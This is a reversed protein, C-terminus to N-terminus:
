NSRTSVGDTLVPAAQWEYLPAKSKSGNQDQLQKLERWRRYQAARSPDADERDNLWFNFWDVTMENIFMRQSPKALDHTGDPLVWYEVPRNLVRLGSYWDWLGSASHSQWMLVPTQVRHLSLAPAHDLWTKLGSGFPMEGFDRQLTDRYDESVYSWWSRDAADMFMAAAIPYDSHTLMYGVWAGSRSWGIMAVRSRDILRLSDVHDIAKEYGDKVVSWENPTNFVGDHLVEEGVQLVIMGKSALPQAVYNKVLGSLSFESSRLGHTQIVLPYRENPDYDPPYFLLGKWTGKSVAWETMKVLGRRVRDLKPSPDFIVARKASKLDEAVLLPRENLSQRLSIKIPSTPADRGTQHPPKVPQWQQAIRRWAFTQSKKMGESEQEILLTQQAKRWEVHRIPMAPYKWDAIWTVERSGIDVAVVGWRPLDCPTDADSNGPYPSSALIVTQDDIWLPDPVPGDQRVSSLLPADLLVRGQGTELDVLFLQDVTIGRAWPISSYRNWHSPKRRLRCAQVAYRSDPSYSGQFGVYCWYVNALYESLPEL